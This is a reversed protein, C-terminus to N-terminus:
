KAKLYLCLFVAARQKLPNTNFKKLFLILYINCFEKKNFFLSGM